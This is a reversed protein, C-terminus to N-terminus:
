MIVVRKRSKRADKTLDRLSSNWVPIMTEKFVEDMSATIKGVFDSNGKFRKQVIVNKEGLKRRQNRVIRESDASRYKSIVIKRGSEITEKHLDNMGSTMSAIVRRDGRSEPRLYMNVAHLKKGKIVTTGLGVLRGQDDSLLQTNELSPFLHTAEKVSAARALVGAGKSRRIIKRDIRAGKFDRITTVNLNKGLPEVSVEGLRGMESRLSKSQRSYATGYAVAGVAAVGVVAGGAIATKKKRSMKKPSAKSSPKPASRKPSSKSSSKKAARVAKQARGGKGRGFTGDKARPQKRWGGLANGWVRGRRAM